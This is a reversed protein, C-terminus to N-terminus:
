GVAVVDPVRDTELWTSGLGSGRKPTPVAPARVFSAPTRTLGAYTVAHKTHLLSTFLRRCDPRLRAPLQIRTLARPRCRSRSVRTGRIYSDDLLFRVEPTLRLRVKKGVQKRVYRNGHLVVARADRTLNGLQNLVQRSRTSAREESADNKARKSHWAHPQDPCCRQKASSPSVKPTAPGSVWHTRNHNTRAHPKSRNEIACCYSHLQRGVLCAYSVRLAQLAGRHDGGEEGPGGACVRVGQGGASRQFAAGDCAV